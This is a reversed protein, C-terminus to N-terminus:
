RSFASRTIQSDQLIPERPVVTKRVHDTTQQQLSPERWYHSPGHPFKKGFFTITRGIIYLIAPLREFMYSEIM